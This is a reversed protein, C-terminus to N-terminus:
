MMRLTNLWPFNTMSKVIDPNFILHKIGCCLTEEVEDLSDFVKNAFYNERIHDWLVEVPNLEPSYPPLFVLKISKPIKLDKSNHWGARDTLLICFDDQFQHAIHDLFISMVETDLWPMILSALHGDCPSVAALTYVYERVIQHCVEARKKPPGWCHRRDSIRGFRGEDEFM